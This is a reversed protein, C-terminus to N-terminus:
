LRCILLASAAHSCCAKPTVAFVGRLLHRTREWILTKHTRAVVKIAEGEPVGRGGPSASPRRHARRAVRRDPDPREHRDAERPWPLAAPGGSARRQGAAAPRARFPDRASFSLRGPPGPAPEPWVPFCLIIRAFQWGYNRTRHAEREM